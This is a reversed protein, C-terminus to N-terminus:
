NPFFCTPVMLVHHCDEYLLTGVCFLFWAQGWIYKCFHPCLVWLLRSSNSFSYTLTTSFLDYRLIQDSIQFNTLVAMGRCNLHYSVVLNAQLISWVWYIDHSVQTYGFLLFFKMTYLGKITARLFLRYIWIQFTVVFCFM